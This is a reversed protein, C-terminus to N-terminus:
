NEDTEKPGNGVDDTLAPPSLGRRRRLQGRILAVFETYAKLHTLHATLWYVAVGCGVEIVLLSWSPWEDPLLLSCMLMGAVMPITALVCGRLNRVMDRVRLGVLRGPIAWLPYLLIYSSVVYGWAVGMVGWHLGVAFSAVDVASAFLGWRFMIDTRGLALYIWGTTTGVGQMMGAVCLVQLIPVVGLWQPGLLTLVFPQAVVLLGAAAPITVVGILRTASLCARRIREPDHQIRSLAPLMARSLVLAVQIVPQLMFQYARSYDGLAKAGIFRGIFLNDANRGFYNVLNFGLLNLSFGSLDRVGRLTPAGRVRWRSTAITFASVLLAYTLMQVVLSWVGLGSAAAVVAAAGSVALSVAEIFFLKRFLMSRLLLANPVISLSSIFFTFSVARTIGVLEPEHYLAAILPAAVVFGLTLLAGGLVNLWFVGKLHYDQLDSRQVLAAGFGMDRVLEAFGTFVIVMGFLGYDSPLLLRALVVQLVIQLVQRTLQM